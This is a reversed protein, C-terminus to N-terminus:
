FLKFQGKENVHYAEPCPLMLQAESATVNYDKEITMWPAPKALWPAYLYGNIKAALICTPDIDMGWLNLSYNSAHLLFRGTGLCPDMVSLRRSDKEEDFDFQMRLMMEVVHHPTPFFAHPNSWRSNSKKESLIVGFYDHPFQIMLGLNFTRYWFENVKADVRSSLKEISSDGLGWLLWELFDSYYTNIAKYDNLCKELMKMPANHPMGLFEIPPIQEELLDGKILTNLWYNWRNHIQSEIEYLYYVLWGKCAREEFSFDDWTKEGSQIDLRQQLCAPIEMTECGRERRCLLRQCTAPQM